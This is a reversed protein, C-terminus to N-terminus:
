IPEDIFGHFNCFMRYQKVGEPEAGVGGISSDRWARAVGLLAGMILPTM